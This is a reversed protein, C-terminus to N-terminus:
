LSIFHTYKGKMKKYKQLKFRIIMSLLVLVIECISVLYKSYYNRAVNNTMWIEPLTM